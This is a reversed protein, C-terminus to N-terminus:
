SPKAANGFIEVPLGDRSVEWDGGNNATAGTITYTIGNDGTFIATGDRLNRLDEIPAGPPLVITASIMAHTVEEVSHIVGQDTPVPTANIGGLKLTAGQQSELGQGNVTITVRGLVTAM